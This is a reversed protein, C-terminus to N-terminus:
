PRVYSWGEEQLEVIRAIGTPVVRAEPILTIEKKEQKGQASMTNGCASFSIDPKQKALRLIRDKVPSSDDRLMHLGPGYAVFEIRLRQEQEAYHKSLNQANNLAMNMLAPDNETVQIVLRHEGPSSVQGSVSVLNAAIMYGNSGEWSRVQAVSLGADVLRPERQGSWRLRTGAPLRKCDIGEPFVDSFTFEDLLEVTGCVTSPAILTHSADEAAALGLMFILLALSKAIVTV